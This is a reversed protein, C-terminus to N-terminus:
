EIKVPIRCQKREMTAATNWQSKWSILSLWFNRSYIIRYAALFFFLLYICIIQMPEWHYGPQCPLIRGARCCGSCRDCSVPLAWQQDESGPKDRRRPRRGRIWGQGPSGPYSGRVGPTRGSGGAACEWSGAAWWCWRWRCAPRCRRSEAWSQLLRERCTASPATPTGTTRIRWHM